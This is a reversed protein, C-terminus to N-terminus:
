WKKIKGKYDGKGPRYNLGSVFFFFPMAYGIVARLYIDINETFPICHIAIVFLISIGKGIDQEIMRSKPKPPIIVQETKSSM